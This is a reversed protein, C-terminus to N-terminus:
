YFKNKATVALLEGRFVSSGGGDKGLLVRGLVDGLDVSGFLGSETLAELDLAEWGEDPEPLLNM